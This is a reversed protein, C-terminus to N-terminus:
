QGIDPDYPWQKANLPVTATVFTGRNSSRIHLDGSHQGLRERMGPIGVGSSAGKRSGSLEPPLGHGWDRVKLVVQENNRQLQVRATSSGSHRHINALCEQVVRFLDTEIDIPLRGISHEAELDVKIGTRTSFGEVYWKLAPILGAEDLMPPHLLYSLTRIEERSQQCLSLCEELTSRFDQVGEQQLLRSLSINIAFLNQATVDHLERAIRRREADQMDLLRSSLLRLEGENQRMLDEAMKTVTIDEGMAVAGAIRRGARIPSMDFRVIKQTGDKCVINTEIRSLSQGQKLVTDVLNNIRARDDTVVLFSWPQGKLELAAYGTVEAARPSVMKLRGKSDIVSVAAVASEMIRRRFQDATGAVSKKALPIPKSRKPMLIGREIQALTTSVSDKLSEHVLAARNHSVLTKQM